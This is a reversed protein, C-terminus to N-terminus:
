NGKTHGSVISFLYTNHICITPFKFYCEPIEPNMYDMHSTETRKVLGTLISDKESNVAANGPGPVQSVGLQCM